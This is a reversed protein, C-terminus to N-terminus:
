LSEDADSIIRKTTSITVNRLSPPVIGHHKCHLTYHLHNAIRALKRELKELSRFQDVVMRGFERNIRQHLNFQQPQNM